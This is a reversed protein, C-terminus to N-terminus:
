QVDVNKSKNQLLYLYKIREITDVDEISKDNRLSIFRPFRLAFGSEYNPSKQIEQYDVSIVVKPKIKIKTGKESLIYPKLLETLEKFTMDEKKTKKEKVGTGLMGCELFKGSSEDRCGLIFSGFWGTRKGTGWTAGIIALDLTEMTPKLKYWGGVHRGFIYPSDLVKLFLGEQKAELAEEYFKKIQKLDDTVIQKALKFKNQIPNVIKELIERREKLPKNFLMKGDIYLVDFLNVQIPIEKEMKGIDYKRQIRQSLIQFPLPFGTKTNVGVVEGEVICENAKLGKESLDVLDPFQKTVDELRRTYIWIKDNKKHIQCNHLTVLTTCYSEDHEIQLNYVNTRQDPRKIETKKLIRVFLKNNKIRSKSGSKTFLLKYYTKGNIRVKKLGSIIGFRLGILQTLTALKKEKTIVSKQNKSGDAELWGKLFELFNEKSINWFWDPITKGKWGSRDQNRFNQSLWHLFPGDEWYLYAAGRYNSNSINNIHFEKKILDKYLNLLKKETKQNFVLGIRKSKSHENTYGDGIWFGLFRYFNKNLIFEKKYGSLTSLTIKEPMKKTRINKPIPFVLEADDPINEIPLWKIKGNVYVLIPHKETIKFENGLFSQVRFIRENKDITRRNKAIVKKFNGSHTLVFDGVKVYRISIIGKNKVYIPTFGSVCRMGDYKFEAAVKGFNNVVEEINKTKEGLMVQVPNGLKVKVKKLGEIGKEKAINAIEGFDPLVNCAYEVIEIIGMKEKKSMGEKILFAKAIADRIIGEAVGVRLDGLITRVIYKAEEPKASVLLESILNLKKDQSGEGTVFALQQLNSFVTDIDLEKKLLTAQKKLRICEEAVFGLDGTKKFKKEIDNVSFGTAKAIAKLMMQTAIGLENGSFKPFVIGQVLLVVKPLQTSPSEKFLDALIDTKALKASTKELKEYTKALISYKM